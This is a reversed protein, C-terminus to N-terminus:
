LGKHTNIRNQVIDSINEGSADFYITYADIKLSKPTILKPTVTIRLYKSTLESELIQSFSIRKRFTRNNLKILISSSNIVWERGSLKTYDRSRLHLRAKGTYPFYNINDLAVRQGDDTINIVLGKRKDYVLPLRTPHGPVVAGIREKIHSLSVGKQTISYDKLLTERRLEFHTQIYIIVFPLAIWFLMFSYEFVISEELFSLSEVYIGLLSFIFRLIMYGILWIIVKKM